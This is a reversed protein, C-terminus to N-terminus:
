FQGLYFRTGQDDTCDSTLGYPQREPDTARGGQARVRAVTETLNDVRYMPVTTARAQGGRLGTKPALNDIDWGDEVRGPLFRWGLVSGYFARARASDEVEMTVYAVDGQREDVPPTAPRAELLAFPVGQDDICNSLRGFPEVQPPHAQGGASRVAEVAADLDGVAFCLFLTAQRYGGHLGHPLSQGSVQWSGPGTARAQWGLVESFFRAARDSDPVWLSMYAITSLPAAPPDASASASSAPAPSAAGSGVAPVPGSVIWRHGFPDRIVANRGYPHTAAPREVTAGGETAADILRDLDPVVLALSVPVRDGPRPAAVQSAPAPGAPPEDALYVPSGALDLEAHGIRGDAMVFADGRRRAGFHEVYWDLASPADAVILYPVVTPRAAPVAVVAPESALDGDILDADLDVTVNSVTVGKPLSLARALRARLHAAFLPDPAIARAPERLAEVLHADFPDSM